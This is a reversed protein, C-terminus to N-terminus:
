QLANTAMLDNFVLPSLFDQYQTINKRIMTASVPVSTRNQDIRIDQCNFAKSIHRGYPESSFFMDFQYGPLLRLLYQEQAGMIAPSYGTEKPGDPALIVTIQPYLSTLWASRMSLPCQPLEDCAYIVVVLQDVQSLATDILWQHGKHLPAFKGLTFGLKM